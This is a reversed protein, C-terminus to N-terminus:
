DYENLRRVIEEAHALRQESKEMRDQARLIAEKMAIIRLMSREISQRIDPPSSLWQQELEALREQFLRDRNPM